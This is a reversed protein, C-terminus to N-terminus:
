PRVNMNFKNASIVIEYRTLEPCGFIIFNQTGHLVVFVDKRNSSPMADSTDQM